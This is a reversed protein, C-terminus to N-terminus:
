GCYDVETIKILHHEFEDFIFEVALGEVEIKPCQDKYLYYIYSVYNKNTTGSYFKQTINPKGLQLFISEKSVSDIRATFIDKCVSFRYGNCSNSDQRWQNSVLNIVQSLSQSPQGNSNLFLGLLIILVLASKM